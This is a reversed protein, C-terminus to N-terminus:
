RCRTRGSLNSGSCLTSSRELLGSAEVDWVDEKGDVIDGLQVGQADLKSGHVGAGGCRNRNM